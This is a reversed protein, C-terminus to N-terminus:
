GHEQSPSRATHHLPYYSLGELYSILSVAYAVSRFAPLTFALKKFENLIPTPKFVSWFLLKM